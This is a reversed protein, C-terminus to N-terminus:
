ATPGEYGQVTNGAVGDLTYTAVEEFNGNLDKGKEM